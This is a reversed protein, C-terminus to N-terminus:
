CAVEEKKRKRLMLTKAAQWYMAIDGKNKINRILHLIQKPRMYFSRTAYRQWYKIDEPTRGKPTYVPDFDTYGAQSSFRSWDRNDFGGEEMAVQYLATGPYPTAISFKCTDLGLEKTFQITAKTEEVTETPLGLIITGRTKLGASKATKVAWRVTNLNTGKQILDMLRQTGTEIGFSILACGAAKMKQCLELDIQDVRCAATWVAEKHLGREILLDCIEMSRKKNVSFNDDLVIIQRGGYKRVLEEWEDVVNKPSRARYRYGSMQRASCFICKYPCGRSTIIVRIPEVFVADPVQHYRDLPIGDMDPFPLEDLEVPLPRDPNHVVREGERYTLGSIGGLSQGRTVAQVLEYLTEEGEGRVLFDINRDKMTDDPLVTPHVGGVVTRVHPFHAKVTQVVRQSATFMPTKCTVGIFCPDFERIKEILLKEDMNEVQGDLIQVEIKREKLYAALYMLSIPPLSPAVEQFDGYFVSSNFHPFVLLVKDNMM